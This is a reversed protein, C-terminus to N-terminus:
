PLMKTIGIKIGYSKLNETITSQSTYTSLLQYRFEPGIQWRINGVRYSLFAELGGSVNWRRYMDPQKAYHEMNNSLMYSSTGLLYSPQVTAGLNFQLRENGLVRLEFGIPASLQYYDNNLSQATVVSSNAQNSRQQGSVGRLTDLVYGYYTYLGQSSGSSAPTSFANIRYRAFNFQLGGKISLNRTLRYLISGGFEFGFAAAHDKDGPHVSTLSGGSPGFKEYSLDSNSLTRYNVTPALTLQFFARGRKPAQPLSNMAYDHLWNVRQRDEAEAIASASATHSAAVSDPLLGDATVTVDSKNRHNAVRGTNRSQGGRASLSELVSRASLGSADIDEATERSDGAVDRGSAAETNTRAGPKIGEEATRGTEAAPTRAAIVPLDPAHDPLQVVQSLRESLSVPDMVPHSLTISIGSYAPDQDEATENGATTNHRTAASTTNPTHLVTQPAHPLDEAIAPKTADGSANADSGAATAPKRLAALHNSPAILERGALFLIGTVLFAM